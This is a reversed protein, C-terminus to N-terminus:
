ACNTLCLNTVPLFPGSFRPLLETLESRLLTRARSDALLLRYKVCVRARGSKCTRGCARGGALPQIVPARGNRTIFVKACKNRLSLKGPRCPPRRVGPNRYPARGIYKWVYVWRIRRSSAALLRAQTLEGSKLSGHFRQRSNFPAAQQMKRLARDCRGSRRTRRPIAFRARFTIQPCTAVHSIASPARSWISFTENRCNGSFSWSFM